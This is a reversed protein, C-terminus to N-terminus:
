SAQVERLLEPHGDLWKLLQVLARPPRTRGTEYRSFANVGGGFREAAERQHLGLKKHVGTSFGPDVLAANVQRIFALMLDLTRRSEAMDLSSEDCAPCFDGTVHPLIMSEGKCTFPVDRTDHVLDATSCTPCRM